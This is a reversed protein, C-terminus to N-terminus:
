QNADEVSALSDLYAGLVKANPVMTMLRLVQALYHVEPSKDVLHAHCWKRM